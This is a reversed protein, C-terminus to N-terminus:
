RHVTAAGAVRRAIEEGDGLYRKDIVTGKGDLEYVLPVGTPINVDVIAEDSLNDLYKVLARLANGHSVVLVRKGNAMDRLIVERYYPLVRDIT